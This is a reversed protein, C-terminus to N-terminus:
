SEFAGGGSEKVNLALIELYSNLLTSVCIFNMVSPKAESM